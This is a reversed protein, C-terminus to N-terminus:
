PSTAALYTGADNGQPYYIAQVPIEPVYRYPVKFTGQFQGQTDTQVTLLDANNLLIPSQERQYLNDKRLCPVKLLWKM